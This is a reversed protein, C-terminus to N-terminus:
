TAYLFHVTFTDDIVEVLPLLCRHPLLFLCFLSHRDPTLTISSVIVGLYPIPPNLLGSLGSRRTVCHPKLGFWVWLRSANQVVCGNPWLKAIHGVLRGVSRGVKADREFTLEESVRMMQEDKMKLDQEMVAVKMRLQTLEREQESRDSGLSKFDHRITQLDSQLRENEAELSSQKMTVDQVTGELKHKVEMLEQLM